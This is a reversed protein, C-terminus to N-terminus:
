AMFQNKKDTMISHEYTTNMLFVNDFVKRLNIITIYFVYILYYRISLLQNYFLRDYSFHEKQNVRHSAFCKHVGVCSKKREKNKSM